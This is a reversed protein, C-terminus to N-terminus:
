GVIWQPTNPKIHKLIGQAGCTNTPMDPMFRQVQFNHQITCLPVIDALQSHTRADVDREREKKPHTHTHTNPIGVSYVAGAWVDQWCYGALRTGSSIFQGLHKVQIQVSFSPLRSSPSFPLFLSPTLSSLSSKHAHTCTNTFLPCVTTPPSQIWYISRM